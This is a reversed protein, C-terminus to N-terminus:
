FQVNFGINYVALQPYMIDSVKGNEPDVIKLKDWTFLNQGSLFMKLNSLHITKILKHNFTYSLQLNKLRLYSADRQWLTSAYYNSQNSYNVTLIPRTATNATQPTWRENKVSELIQGYALGPQQMFGDLMVSVNAVGQFLFDLDFGKYSLGGSFGYSIEPYVPNGIAIQDRDNVIGDGNIDAYKADGPKSVGSFQVPSQAVDNADKFFGLFKYGFPQENRRGTKALYPNKTDFAEDTYLVKNRTFSYNGKLRYSVAGIKDEWGLEMEFGRNVMIGLNEVANTAAFMAPVTNRTGLIDNRKEYFYDFTLSLKQKLMKLDVGYDQKRAKEWTVYPNGLRDEAFGGISSYDEGFRAGYASIYKSPYYLFRSGGQDNGVIGYSARLKLHDILNESVMKRFFSEDSLLWGGSFAPFIGFRRGEAFNESGNYGLNFELFYRSKYNYTFREVLGLYSVPIYAPDAVNFRQKNQNYLLLETFNHDNFSKEYSLGAELYEKISRSGFSTSSLGGLTPDTSNYLKYVPTHVDNLVSDKLIYIGPTRSRQVSYSYQTDYSYKVKATLGKTIFDLKQELGINSQIKNSTSRTFGTSMTAILNANRRGELYVINGDVVGPTYPAATTVIQSYVTGNVGLDRNSIGTISGINFNLKTSPTLNVDLNTRVNYRQYHDNNSYGYSENFNKYLGDQNQYGLSVYYRALKSGGSINVNHQTQASYKNMIMNFWDVNPHYIPDTGDKYLQIDTASYSLQSPTLLPNDNLEGENRLLAYDYSNAFKPLRIAQDLGFNATYTVKAPGEKGQKTTVVIVGNAGRVGYVATSAADKLVTMSEIENMDLQSFDREVGDVVVLASTSNYTGSGRIRFTVNDNGPQGSNQRSFVGTARGVLAQTANVVPSKLLETASVTALSGTVNIKKQTGYGVVVVESMLANKPELTIQVQVGPVVTVEKTEFGIFSVEILTKKDLSPLNFKGNVDTISGTKAGKAKISAGIIAQGADDKVIGSVGSKSTSIGSGSKNTQSNVVFIVSLVFSLVLLRKNSHFEWAATMKSAIWRVKKSKFKM